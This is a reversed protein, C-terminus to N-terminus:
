PKRIVNTYRKTKQTNKYKDNTVNNTRKILQGMPQAVVAVDGSATTDEQIIFERARM